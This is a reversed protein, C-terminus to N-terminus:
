RGAEEDVVFRSLGYSTGTYIRGESDMTMGAFNANECINDTVVEFPADPARAGVLDLLSELRDGCGQHAGPVFWRTRGTEADLARVGFVPRGDAWGLSNDLFLGSGRSVMPIGTPFSARPNEWVTSCTRTVPDWDIRAAGRPAHEPIGGALEILVVRAGSDIDELEPLGRVTNDVVYAAYGDVVVSQDTKTGPRGPEGFDVPVSCALRPDDGEPPVWGDPVEDRWYLNLRMFRSADTIAVFRDDQAPDGMLTPTSGSGGTFAGASSSEYAARWTEELRDGVLDFRYQARDSVVYVGGKEDVAVNNSMLELDADPDECAAGNVSGTAVVGDVWAHPDAPLVLLNGLSTGVVLHGDYTHALGVLDEDQCLYSPPVPFDAIRTIASGADTPDVDGWAEVVSKNLRIVQNDANLEYYAVGMGQRPTSPPTEALVTFSEVDVKMVQETGAVNIWLVRTGDPYPTAEHAWIPVAGDLELHEARLSGDASTAPLYTSQRYSNGHTAAQATPALYPNCPAMGPAEVVDAPCVRPPEEAARGPDAGCGASATTLVLLGLTTLVLRRRV